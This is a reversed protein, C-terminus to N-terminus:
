NPMITSLVPLADSPLEPLTIVANGYTRSASEVAETVTPM